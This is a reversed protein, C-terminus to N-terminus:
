RREHHPERLYDKVDRDDAFAQRRAEELSQKGGLASRAKAILLMAIFVGIFLAYAAAPHEGLWRIADYSSLVTDRM